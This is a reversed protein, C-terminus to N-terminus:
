EAARVHVRGSLAGESLGDPLQDGRLRRQPEQQIRLRCLTRARRLDCESKRRSRTRGPAARPLSEREKAMKAKDKKGMARRLLDSQGLSYGALRNAAAMVQEQYILVGYTEASIEELLLHLYRVKGGKKAKIFEPILDMPGPRYLAILAIIDDLKQVDLQKSVATM